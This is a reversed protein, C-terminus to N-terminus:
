VPFLNYWGHQKRMNRHGFYVVREIFIFVRENGFVVLENRETDRLIRVAVEAFYVVHRIM